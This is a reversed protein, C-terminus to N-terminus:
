KGKKQLYYYKLFIKQFNSIKSGFTTYANRYKTREEAPLTLIFNHLKQFGDKLVDLTKRDDAVLVRKKDLPRIFLDLHYDMQPLITMKDCSYM